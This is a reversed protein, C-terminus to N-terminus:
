AGRFKNYIEHQRNAQYVKRTLNESDVVVTTHYSAGTQIAAAGTAGSIARAPPIIGGGGYGTIGPAYAQGGPLVNFLQPSVLDWHRKPVVMEPEFREGLMALMPGNVFGGEGFLGSIHLFPPTADLSVHVINLADAFAHAIGTASKVIDNYIAAGIGTIQGALWSGFGSVAGTISGWITGGIGSTLGGLWSGFGGIASKMNNWMWMGLGILLGTLYTEIGQFASKYANWLQTGLGSILSWLYTGFSALANKLGTWFKVYFNFGTVIADWIWQGIGGAVTLLATRLGTWFKVYLNFGKVIADWIWQGIGGYLSKLVVIMANGLLLGIKLFIPGWDVKALATGLAIAIKAFITPLLAVLKIFVNGLKGLIDPAAKEVGSGVKTGVDGKGGTAFLSDFLSGIANIIKDIMPGPDFNLISDLAHSIADLLGAFLGGYDIHSLFNFASLLANGITTASEEFVKVMKGAWAGYDFNKISDFAHAFGSKILDGAKTFDGSMLADKIQMVWGFVEKFTNVVGGIMDRFTKSTAYLTVFIAILSAAIAVVPLLIGGFSGMITGLLGAGQADGTFAAGLRGVAGVEKLIPSGEGGFAKMVSNLGRAEKSTTTLQQKLNIAGKAENELSNLNKVEGLATKMGKVETSASSTNLGVTKFEDKLKSVPEVQISNTSTALTKVKSDLVSSESGADKFGKQLASLDAGFKVIVDYGGAAM